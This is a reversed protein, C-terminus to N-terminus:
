AAGAKFGGKDAAGTVQGAQKDSEWGDVRATNMWRAAQARLQAWQRGPLALLAAALGALLVIGRRAACGVRAAEGAGRIDGWGM